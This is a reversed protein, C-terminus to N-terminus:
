DDWVREWKRSQVSKYIALAVRMETLSHEPQSRSRGAEGVDTPVSMRWGTQTCAQAFDALQYGFTSSYGTAPKNRQQYIDWIGPGAAPQPSVDKGEPPQEATYLTVTDLQADIRLEGATGVM